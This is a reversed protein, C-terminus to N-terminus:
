GTVCSAEAESSSLASIPERGFHDSKRGTEVRWPALISVVPAYM